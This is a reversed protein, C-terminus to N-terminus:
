AGPLNYQAYDGDFETPITTLIEVWRITSDAGKLLRLINGSVKLKRMTLAKNPSLAGRLVDVWVGYVGSLTFSTKREGQWTETIEGNVLSYGAVLTEKIGKAPEATLVMTYSDTDNKAMRRYKEDANTRRKVEEMYEKTGFKM